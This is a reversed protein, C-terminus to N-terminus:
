ERDSVFNITNGKELLVIGTGKAKVMYGLSLAEKLKRNICEGACGHNDPIKTDVAMFDPASNFYPRPFIYCYKRDVLRVALNSTASVPVGEPIIELMRSVALDRRDPIYKDIERWFRHGAPTPGYFFCSLIISAAATYVPLLRYRGHISELKKLGYAFSLIIFPFAPASHHTGIDMGALLDKLLVPFAGLLVSPTFLPIFALP